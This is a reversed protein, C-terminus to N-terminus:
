MTVGTEGKCGSDREHSNSYSDSDSGGDTGDHQQWVIMFVTARVTM